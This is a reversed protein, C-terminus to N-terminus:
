GEDVQLNVLDTNGKGFPDIKEGTKKRQQKTTLEIEATATEEERELSTMKRGLLVIGAFGCGM